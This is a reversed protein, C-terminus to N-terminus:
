LIDFLDEYKVNSHGNQRPEEIKQLFENHEQVQEAVISQVFGLGWGALESEFILRDAKALEDGWM